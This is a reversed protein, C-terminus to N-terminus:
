RYWWGPPHPATSLAISEFHEMYLNCVITSVPSGMAAGHIQAYFAEDYPFYTCKLCIELLKTLHTPSLSTREHLTDDTLLKDHIITIAKQVPVSTFLASVDYSILIEDEEVRRNKM